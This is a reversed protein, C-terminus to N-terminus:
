LEKVVNSQAAIVRQVIAISATDMHMRECCGTLYPNDSNKALTVAFIRDVSDGYATRAKQWAESPIEGWADIMMALDILDRSLTAADLGRDANALLKEAFMDSRSLVPVKLLGDMDGDLEIRGERVIEFKIPFGDVELVTRIGYQDMRVDRLQKLKSQFLGALGEEYIRSRLLRYGDVSACLFDIDVSERYENLALVVATGGGFYCSAQMLLESNMSNLVGHIRRHHERKFM